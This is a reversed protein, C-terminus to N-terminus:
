HDVHPRGARRAAPRQRHRQWDLLFARIGPTVELGLELERMLGRLQEALRHNEGVRIALSGAKALRLQDEETRFQKVLYIAFTSLFQQNRHPPVLESASALWAAAELNLAQDDSLSPWGGGARETATDVKGM